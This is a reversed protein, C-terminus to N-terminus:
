QNKCRDCYGYFDLNHNTMKFNYKSALADQYEHIPCGEIHIVKHCKICILHHTHKDHALEYMTQKSIDVNVEHVIDHKFFMELIRYVTSFSITPEKQIAENFIDDASLFSKANNLIDLVLLRHKTKKLGAEALLTEFHNNM